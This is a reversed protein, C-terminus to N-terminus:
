QKVRNVRRHVSARPCSSSCHRKLPAQAATASTSCRREQTVSSVLLGGRSAEHQIQWTDGPVRQVPDLPTGGQGSLLTVWVQGRPSLVTAASACFDRLLARHRQIQNRAKPM